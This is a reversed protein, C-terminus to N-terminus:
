KTKGSPRTAPRKADPSPTVSGIRGMAWLAEPTMRRNEIRIDSRGILDADGEKTAESSSGCSALTMVASMLLLNTPKM